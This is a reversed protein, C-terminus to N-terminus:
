NSDYACAIAAFNRAPVGAHPRPLAVGSKIPVRQALRVLRVGQPVASAARSPVLAVGLGSRVLTLVANIQEAQQAVRPVFGAALCANLTIAHLVSTPNHMVFPQGALDELRVEGELALSSMEPLAARMEDPDIEITDLDAEEILPLRVLGVDLEGAALRSAIQASTAEALVLKM